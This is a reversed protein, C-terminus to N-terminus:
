LVRKHASLLRSRPIIGDLEKDAGSQNALANEQASRCSGASGGRERSEGARHFTRGVTWTITLERSTGGGGSINSPAVVPVALSVAAAAFFSQAWMSLIWVFLALGCAPDGEGPLGVSVDRGPLYLISTVAPALRLVKIDGNSHRWLLLCLPM